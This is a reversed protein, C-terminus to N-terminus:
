CDVFETMFDPDSPIPGSLDPLQRRRQESGSGPQEVEGAVRRPWQLGRAEYFIGTHGVEV